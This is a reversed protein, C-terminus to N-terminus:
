YMSSVGGDKRIRSILSINPMSKNGDSRPLKALKLGNQMSYFDSKDLYGNDFATNLNETIKLALEYVENQKENVTYTM